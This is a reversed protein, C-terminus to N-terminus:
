APMQEEYIFCVIIYRKGKTIMKGAHLLEGRFSIVGGVETKMSENTESFYTGGGEYEDLSNMAITLSYESQDNHLPLRKQGTSADYKVLFCDFIRLRGEIAFNIKMAPFIIKELQVNFWSFLEPIQYVPIDTTPVAYHRSTTWHSNGSENHFNEAVQVMQKCEDADLVNEGVFVSKDLGNAAVWQKASSDFSHELSPGCQRYYTTAEELAICIPKRNTVSADAAYKELLTESRHFDGQWGAIRSQLLRVAGDLPNLRLQADVIISADDYCTQSRALAMLMDLEEMTHEDKEPQREFVCRFCRCSIGKDELLETREELSADNDIRSCTLNHICGSSTITNDGDLKIQRYRLNQMDGVCEIEHSPVCSHVLNEELLCFSEVPPFFHDAEDILEIVSSTEALNLLYDQQKRNSSDGGDEVIQECEIAYNSRVSAIIFNRNVYHLLRSWDLLSPAKEEDNNGMVMMELLLEHTAQAINDVAQSIIDDINSMQICDGDILAHMTKDDGTLILSAAIMITAYHAPGAELALVKLRYMAHDATVLGVCLKSHQGNNEAEHRCSASCFKAGCQSTCDVFLQDHDGDDSITPYNYKIKELSGCHLCQTDQNPPAFPNPVWCLPRITEPLPLSPSPSSTNM